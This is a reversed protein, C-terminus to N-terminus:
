GVLLWVGTGTHMMMPARGTVLVSTESGRTAAMADTMLAAATRIVVGTPMGARGTDGGAIMPMTTVAAMMTVAVAVEGAIVMKMVDAVTVAKHASMVLVGALIMVVKVGTERGAAESPPQGTTSTATTLPKLTTTVRGVVPPTLPSSPPSSSCAVAIVVAVNPVTVVEMLKVDM